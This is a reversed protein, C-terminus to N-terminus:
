RISGASLETTLRAGSARAAAVSLAARQRSPRARPGSSPTGIATL